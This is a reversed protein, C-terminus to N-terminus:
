VLLEFLDEEKDCISAQQPIPTILIMLLLSVGIPLFEMKLVM